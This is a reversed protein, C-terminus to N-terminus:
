PGSSHCKIRTTTNQGNGGPLLVLKDNRVDDPLGEEDYGVMATLGLSDLEEAMYGYEWFLGILISLIAEHSSYKGM